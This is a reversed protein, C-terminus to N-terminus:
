FPCVKQLSKLEQIFQRKYRRFHRDTVGYKQALEHTCDRFTGAFMADLLDNAWPKWKKLHERIYSINMMAAAHNELCYGSPVIDHLTIAETNDVVADLSLHPRLNKSIRNRYAAQNERHWENYIDRDVEIYMRDLQEDEIICDIIFYRKAEAPLTKNKRLIAVWEELSISELTGAMPGSAVRALYINSM